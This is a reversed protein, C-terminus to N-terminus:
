AVSLMGARRASNFFELVVHLDRSAYMTPSSVGTIAMNFTAANNFVGIFRGRTVAYYKPGGPWFMTPFVLDQDPEVVFCIGVQNLYPDSVVSPFAFAVNTAPAVASAGAAAPMSVPQSYDVVFDIDDSDSDSAAAQSMEPAGEMDSIPSGAGVGMALEEFEEGLPSGPPTASPAMASPVNQTDISLDARVTENANVGSEHALLGDAVAAPATMSLM